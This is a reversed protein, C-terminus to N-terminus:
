PGNKRIWKAIADVVQEEIGIYGHYHLADCVAGKVPGGGTFSVLDLQDVSSLAELLPTVGAYSTTPCQDREHHVVLTPVTIEELSVGADLELLSDGDTPGGAPIPALVSSTLVIGDPGLDVGLRKLHITNYAVSTSGRSTGVLWIPVGPTRNRMFDIIVQTDAAHTETHRFGLGLGILGQADSTLQRDRPVGVVVATIRERAFFKRSRLLFNPNDTNGDDQIMALGRSGMFLLAIARPNKPEVLGVRVTNVGGPPVPMARGTDLDFRSITPEREALAPTALLAACILGALTRM